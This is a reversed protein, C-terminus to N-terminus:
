RLNRNEKGVSQWQRNYFTMNGISYRADHMSFPWIITGCVYVCAITRFRKSCFLLSHNAPPPTPSLPSTISFVPFHLLTWFITRGCLLLSISVCFLQILVVEHNNWMFSNYHSLLVCGCLNGSWLVSSRISIVSKNTIETQETHLQQQQQQKPCGLTTRKWCNEWFREVIM